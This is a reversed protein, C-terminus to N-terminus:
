LIEKFLINKYQYMFLKKKLNYVKDKRTAESKVDEAVYCKLKNDYYFFDAIYNIARQKKGDNDVFSEQLEFKKQLELEKIRGNRQYNELVMYWNKEKISDFKHGKYIVKKNHYKNEKLKMLYTKGYSRNGNVMIKMKKQDEKKRRKM